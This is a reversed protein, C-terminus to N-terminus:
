LVKTKKTCYNQSLKLELLSNQQVESLESPSARNASKQSYVNLKITTNNGIVYYVIIWLIIRHRVAEMVWKSIAEDSLDSLAIDLHLPSRRKASKKQSDNHM